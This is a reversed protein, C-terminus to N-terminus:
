NTEYYKAIEIYPAIAEMYYDYEDTETLVDLIYTAEDEEIRDLLNESANIVNYLAYEADRLTKFEKTEKIITATTLMGFILSLLITFGLDVMSVTIKNNGM